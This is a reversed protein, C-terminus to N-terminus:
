RLPISRSFISCKRFFLMYPFKPFGSIFYSFLRESWWVFFQVSGRRLHQNIVYLILISFSSQLFHWFCGSPTNQPFFTNKLIYCFKCSVGTGSFVGTFKAFNKLIGRQCFLEPRSSRFHPCKLLSRSIYITNTTSLQICQKMAKALTGSRSPLM